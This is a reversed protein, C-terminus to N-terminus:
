TDLQYKNIIAVMKDLRKTEVAHRRSNVHRRFYFTVDYQHGKKIEAGCSDCVFVCRMDRERNLQECSM